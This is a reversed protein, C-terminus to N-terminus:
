AVDEKPAGLLDAKNAAERARRTMRLCIRCCPRKRGRKHTRWMTNEPTMAHGRMCEGRHHALVTPSQGRLVNVASTVPELHDPNCCLTNRCLHDLHLGDPVPGRMAEYAFIHSSTAGDRKRGLSFTGYPQGNYSSSGGTWVWCPTGNWLPGNKNVRRWFREEPPKVKVEGWYLNSLACNGPNDDKFRAKLGDPCPGVFVALMLRAFAFYQGGHENVLRVGLFPPSTIYPKRREWGRKKLRWFSGDSGVRYQPYDAVTRYEVLGM